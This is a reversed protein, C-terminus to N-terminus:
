RHAVYELIELVRQATKSWTFRKARDLGKRVLHQKLKPQTIVKYVGEAISDVSYPDIYCAADGCVEPISAARSTIVPCGCAMAELPPLGFGEYLSPFVLADAASYLRPLDEEPVYGPFLVKEQLGLKAVLRSIGPYFKEDKRGAVLFKHEPLGLRGFAQVARKINKYPRMDGVYFIFKGLRYKEGAVNSKVPFFRAHDIGCPVVFIDRKRLRFLSIIDKRTNESACIIAASSRLCLPVIRRFYAARRWGMRPFLLPMIDFCTVVQRFGGWLMGEEVSCYLIDIGDALLHLPLATQCWLLRCAHGRTRHEPSILNTTLKVRRPDFHKLNPSNTYVVVDDAQRLMEKATEVSAVALGTPNSRACTANVGIRMKEM